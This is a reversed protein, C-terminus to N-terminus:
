NRNHAAPELKYLGDGDSDASYLGAVSFLLFSFVVTQLGVIECDVLGNVGISIIIACLLAFHPNQATYGCNKFFIVGKKLCFAAFLLAGVIGYSFLLELIVSHAHMKWGHHKMNMFLSEIGSFDAFRSWFDTDAKMTTDLMGIMGHGFLPKERIGDIAIKWYPMRGDYSVHFNHLRMGAFLKFDPFLAFLTLLAAIFVTFVAILKYKRCLLLILFLGVFMGAWPMRSGSLIMGAANVILVPIYIRRYKKVTIIRYTCLLVAFVIFYAYYLPNLFTSSCRLESDSFGFLYEAAAAFAAFVSYALYVTVLCEFVAPTINQMLYLAAIMLFFFFVCAAIGVFNLNLVSVAASLLIFATILRNGGTRLIDAAVDRRAILYIGVAFVAIVSAIMHVFSCILLLFVAKIEPDFSKMQSHFERASDSLFSLMPSRKGGVTM